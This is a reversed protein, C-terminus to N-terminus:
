SCVIRFASEQFINLGNVLVDIASAILVYSLTILQLSYLRLIAVLIEVTRFLRSLRKLM